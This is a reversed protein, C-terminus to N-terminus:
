RYGTVQENMQVAICQFACAHPMSFTCAASYWGHLCSTVLAPCTVWFMGAHGPYQKSARGSCRASFNNPRPDQAGCYITAVLLTAVIGTSFQSRLHYSPLLHSAQVQPASVAYVPAQQLLYYVEVSYRCHRLLSVASQKGAPLPLGSLSPNHYIASNGSLQRLCGKDDCCCPKCANHRICISRNLQQGRHHSKVIQTNPRDAM